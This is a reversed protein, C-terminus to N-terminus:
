GRQREQDQNSGFADDQPRYEQILEDPVDVEPGLKSVVFCRMASQLRTAGRAKFPTGTIEAIWGLPSGRELLYTDIEAEDMLFGGQAYDTSPAYACDLVDSYWRVDGNKLHVQGGDESLEGISKAVLWNLISGSQDNVKVRMGMRESTRTSAFGADVGERHLYWIDDPM